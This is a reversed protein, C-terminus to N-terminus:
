FIRTWCWNCQAVPNKKTLDGCCGLHVAVSMPPTIGLFSKTKHRYYRLCIERQQATHVATARPSLVQCMQLTKTYVSSSSNSTLGQFKLAACPFAWPLTLKPRTQQFGAHLKPFQPSISVVTDLSTPLPLVFATHGRVRCPLPSFDPTFHTQM